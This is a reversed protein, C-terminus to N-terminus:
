ARARLGDAVNLATEVDDASLEIGFMLQWIYAVTESVQVTKGYGYQPTPTTGNAEVPRFYVGRSGRQLDGTRALRALANGAQKTTLGTKQAIEPAMYGRGDGMLGLIETTIKKAM